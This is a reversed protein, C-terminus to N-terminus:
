NNNSNEIVAFSTIVSSYAQVINEFKFEYGKPPVYVVDGPLPYIDSALPNGKHIEKFNVRVIDAPELPEARNRQPRILAIWAMNADPTHGKALSIYDLVTADTRFEFAGSEFVEGLVFVRNERTAVQVVDNHQLEFGAAAELDAADRDLNLIWQSLEGNSDYRRVMTNSLDTLINHSGTLRLIDGLTEGPLLEYRGARSVGLLDVSQEPSPLYVVDHNALQINLESINGELTLELPDVVWVRSDPSQLREAIWEQWGQNDDAIQRSSRCVVAPASIDVTQREGDALVPNGYDAMKALSTYDFNGRVLHLRRYRPSATLDLKELVDLLQAGNDLQLTQGPQDPGYVFVEFQGAELLQLGVVPQKYYVLYETTILEAASSLGTGAVPLAGILPLKIVGATDVQVKYEQQERGDFFQVLLYDGPSLTHDMVNLVPVLDSAENQAVAPAHVLMLLWTAAALLRMIGRKFQIM